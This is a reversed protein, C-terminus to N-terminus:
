TDTSRQGPGTKEIPFTGMIVDNRLPTYFRRRCEASADPRGVSGLYAISAM